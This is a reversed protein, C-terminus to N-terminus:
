MNLNLAVMPSHSDKNITDINNERINDAAAVGVHCEHCM